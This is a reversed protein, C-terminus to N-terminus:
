FDQVNSPRQYNEKNLLQYQHFEAQFSKAEKLLMDSLLKVDKYDIVLHMQDLFHVHKKRKFFTKQHIMKFTLDNM